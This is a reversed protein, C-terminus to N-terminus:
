VAAARQYARHRLFFFAWTAIAALAYAGVLSMAVIVRDQTLADMEKAAPNLIVWAFFFAPLAFLPFWLWRLSRWIKAGDTFQVPLMTFLLGEVGGAFLIAAVEGPLYSWWDDNANTLDRLAPLLLWSGIAIALLAIAPVAVAQASHRDDLNHSSLVITSAVFGYMIPAQFDVLRSLVVFGTAIFLAVPFIRVGAPVGFRRSTMLAEGGEYVYTIIGAGIVLSLFLLLSEDSFGIDSENFTYVLGTLLLVAVGAIVSLVASADASVTGFPQGFFASLRRFPATLRFWFAQVQIRNESLTENFMTSTFLLVILMIIALLINTAIVRADKSIQDPGLLASTTEPRVTLDDGRGTASSGDPEGGAPTPAVEGLVGSTRTSTPQV